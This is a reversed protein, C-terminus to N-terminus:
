HDKNNIEVNGNDGTVINPSNTGSSRQEIHQPPQTPIQKQPSPQPQPPAIASPQQPVSVATSPPVSRAKSGLELTHAVFYGAALLFLAAAIRQQLDWRMPNTIMLICLPVVAALIVKESFLHV